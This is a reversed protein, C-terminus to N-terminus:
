SQERGFEEYLRMLKEARNQSFGVEEKM